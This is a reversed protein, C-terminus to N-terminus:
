SSVSAEPVKDYRDKNLYYRQDGGHREEDTVMGTCATEVAHLHWVAEDCQSAIKVVRDLSLPRQKEPQLAQRHHLRRYMDEPGGYELRFIIHTPSHCTQHLRIINPHRTKEDSLMQMVRITRNLHM